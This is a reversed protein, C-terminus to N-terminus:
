SCSKHSKEESAEQGQQCREGGEELGGPRVWQSQRDASSWVYRLPSHSTYNIM